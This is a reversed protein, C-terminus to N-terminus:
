TKQVSKTKRGAKLEKILAADRNYIDPRFHGEGNEDAWFTLYLLLVPVKRDLQVVEENDQNMAAHIKEDTWHDDKLLIKAFKDPNQIRICGHSLARTERAFLSRAPTDHIYINYDNPFMFKVLGLSNSGGPKQRIRYPFNNGDKGSWSVSKPNVVEGSNSVVEMNKESLYNGNKQVSPIIEGNTISPPINWYPSFVIYSMPATFVPSENYEKGVIVKATLATDGETLYDLQYNAINVLVLEKDWEIEPMWRMREMNVSAIEILKETSNNLFETTLDGIAGDPNMGNEMQYRKLGEWMTSDFLQEDETEYEDLFGWFQLRERLGPISQHVDGVKLSQDFSVQQWTLTDEEHKEYLDKLVERGKTYMDMKPYLSALGDQIDEGDAIEQLLENYNAKAEKAELKWYSDQSQSSIKGVELDHSLKFFADTMLLDLDVLEPTSKPKLIRRKNQIEEFFENIQALNYDQPNLGDYKVAEIEELFEEALDNIKGNNSWVEEYDRDEYFSIVADSNELQSNGISIPNERNNDALRLEIEETLDSRRLRNVVFFGAALLFIIGIILISKNKM